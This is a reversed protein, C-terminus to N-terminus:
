SEIVKSLYNAKNKGDYQNQRCVDTYTPSFFYGGALSMQTM